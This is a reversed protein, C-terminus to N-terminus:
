ESEHFVLRKRLQWIVATLLLVLVFLCVALASAYGIDNLQFAQQYIAFSLVSSQIGPGGNTLLLVVEFIKFSGTIMLMFVMLVAPSIQPLVVHRFRGWRGAGDIRAADILEDPVAQLAALFIMVNVGVNKTMQIIAFIVLTLPGGRLWPYPGLGVAGFLADLAGEPQVIFRWVLTWAVMTVLAPIFIAARFINIGPLKQNLLMALALALATGLVSLVLVFFGTNPLITRMDPDSFIRVYNDVGVFTRQQSLVNVNHLSLWVVWVVATVGIATFGIVQPALLTYGFPNRGADRRSRGPKAM